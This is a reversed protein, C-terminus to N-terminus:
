RWRIPHYSPLEGRLYAALKKAALHTLLGQPVKAELEPVEIEQQRRRNWERLMLKRGEQNLYIGGEEVPEFMEPQIMGLNILSLVLRDAIPARFEEVLDLALAPKGPREGHFFGVDSDLGVCELAYTCETTLLSYAYWHDSGLISRLEVPEYCVQNFASDCFRIGFLCFFSKQCPVFKAVTCQCNYDLVSRGKRIPSKHLLNNCLNRLAM